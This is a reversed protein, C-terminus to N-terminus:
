VKILVKDGESSVVDILIFHGNRKIYEKFVKYMLPLYNLISDISKGGYKVLCKVILKSKLFSTPVWFKFKYGESSNIYIKM